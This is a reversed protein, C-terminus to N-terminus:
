DIEEIKSTSHQFPLSVSFTSGKEPESQLAIRGNLEHAFQKVVRLGLGPGLYLGKNSPDGKAFSEYITKQKNQPIGIGSDEIDFRIMFPENKNAVAQESIKLKVYGNQTFKIANGILNILIRNLRYKDGAVVLPINSDYDLIIELGKKKATIKEMAVINNALKKMSFSTNNIPVVGHEIRSFDLIDNCYEMLQWLARCMEATMQKKKPDAEDHYWLDLVSWVGALPTRIDHEVDRIFQTKLSNAKEAQAKAEQLAIREKKRETIDFSNGFVGMVQGNDDLLPKKNSLLIIKEGDSFEVTEEMMNANGSTLVERDTAILKEAVEQSFLDYDTKGNIEKASQLGFAKAWQNNCGLYHGASDKWYIYGSSSAIIDRPNVATLQKQENFLTEIKEKMESIDFAIGLLGIIQDSKDKLPMKYSLHISKSGDAHEIPKNIMQAEGSEIVQDNEGFIHNDYKQADLNTIRSGIADNRSSFGISKAQSDNCGIIIGQRDIWYIHCPLSSLITELNIESASM